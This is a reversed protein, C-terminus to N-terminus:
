RVVEASVGAPLLNPAYAAGHFSRMHGGSVLVFDKGRVVLPAGRLRRPRPARQLQVFYSGLLQQLDPMTPGQWAVGFVLGSPSVYERITKGDPTGLEKISYGQRATERLQARMRQQDTTVSNEYQGLVAWGPLSGLLLVVLVGLFIKM